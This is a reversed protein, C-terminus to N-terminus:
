ILMRVWDIVVFASGGLQFEDITGDKLDQHVQVFPIFHLSPLL